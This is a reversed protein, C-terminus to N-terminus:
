GETYKKKEIKAIEKEAKVLIADLAEVMKQEHPFKLEPSIAKLHSEIRELRAMMASPIKLKYDTLKIEDKHIFVSM